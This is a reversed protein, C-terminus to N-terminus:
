RAADARQQRERERRAHQSKSQQRRRQEAATAALSIWGKHDGTTYRAVGEADIVFESSQTKPKTM